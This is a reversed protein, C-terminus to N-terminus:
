SSLAADLAPGINKAENRAPILISVLVDGKPTHLPTARLISLNVLALAFSLAALGLLILGLVIM